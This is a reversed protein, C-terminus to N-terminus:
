SAARAGKRIGAEMKELARRPGHYGTCGLLDDLVGASPAPLLRLLVGEPVEEIDLEAVPHLGRRTRLEKPIVLQGKSSVRARM